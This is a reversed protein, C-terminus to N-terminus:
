SYKFDSGIETTSHQWGANEDEYVCPANYSAVVAWPSVGTDVVHAHECEPDSISDSAVSIAEEKTDFDGHFDKLGGSPFYNDYHFLLYRKM